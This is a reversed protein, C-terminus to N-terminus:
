VFRMVWRWRLFRIDSKDQKQFLIFACSVMGLTIKWVMETLLVKHNLVSGEYILVIQSGEWCRVVLTLLLIHFWWCLLKWSCQWPSSLKHVLWTTVQGVWVVVLTSRNTSITMSEGGICVALHTVPMHKHIQVSDTAYDCMHYPKGNWMEWTIWAITWHEGM